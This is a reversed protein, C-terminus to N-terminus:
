INDIELIIIGSVTIFFLSGLIKYLAKPYEKTMYEDMFPKKLDKVNLNASKVKEDSIIIHGKYLFFSSGICLIIISIYLGIQTMLKSLNYEIKNTSESHDVEFLNDSVFNPLVTILKDKFILILPIMMIFLFLIIAFFDPGLKGVMLLCGIVLLIIVFLITYSKIRYIENDKLSSAIKIDSM